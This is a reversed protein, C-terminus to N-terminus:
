VHASRRREWKKKQDILYRRLADARECFHVEGGCVTRDFDLDCYGFGCDMGIADTDRFFLCKIEGTMELGGEGRELL